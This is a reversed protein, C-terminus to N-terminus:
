RDQIKHRVRRHHQRRSRRVELAKDQRLALERSLDVHRSVIIGYIKQMSKEAMDASKGAQAACVAPQRGSVACFHRPQCQRSAPAHKGSARSPRLRLICFPAPLYRSRKRYLIFLPHLSSGNCGRLKAFRGSTSVMCWAKCAHHMIKRNKPPSAPASRVSLFFNARKFLASTRQQARKQRGRNGNENATYAPRNFTKVCIHTFGIWFIKKKQQAM